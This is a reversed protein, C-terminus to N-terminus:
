AQDGDSGCTSEAPLSFHLRESSCRSVSRSHLLFLPSDNMIAARRKEDLAILEQSQAPLARRKLGRDFAEPHERIWKIDHM